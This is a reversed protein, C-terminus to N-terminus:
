PTPAGGCVEQQTPANLLDILVKLQPNLTQITQLVALSTCDTIFLGRRVAGHADQTSFISAGAHNLWAAWYLFGEESGPPNYALTNFLVNLFSATRTLRPATPELKQAALRLQHVTPQAKVSFPRLQNKIIPTTQKLFPRVQELSPGLARAGPILANFTPGLVQALQDTKGLTTNATQLTGPLLRLTEELKADESAIAQFNANSADVLQTLQHDKGALAETLLRFNHIVHRLNERRKSLLGTFRATDRSTAYFRKFTSRLAAPTGPTGFAEGGANILIELYARTDSDLNSLIEDLNVDPLTNSVPLTGGDPVAGAAKTGPDMEIYMDKLGTKPRLLLTANKYIPAERQSKKIKMQVVAVGNELKVGGIEGIPVGAINVTQGQGPVVAQATSFEANVTYFDTGVFPVWAPLYLRQHGLVYAAVAMAILFLGIIAVFDRMHKKIAHKM